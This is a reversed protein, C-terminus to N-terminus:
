WTAMARRWIPRISIPLRAKMFDRYTVLDADTSDASYPKLAGVSMIGTAAELGALVMVTEKNARGSSIFRM